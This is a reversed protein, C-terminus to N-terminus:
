RSSWRLKKDTGTTACVMPRGADTQGSAGAQQCYSGSRVKETAVKDPGCAALSGVATAVVAATALHRSLMATM